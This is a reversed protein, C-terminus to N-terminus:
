MHVIVYLVARLWTKDDEEKIKMRFYLTDDKLYQTNKVPDHALESHAIFAPQGWDEKGSCTENITIRETHMHHNKNELQNLLTFTVKGNFPSKGEQIHVYVSVHTGRWRDNGNPYVRLAMRYRNPSTYFPSFCM